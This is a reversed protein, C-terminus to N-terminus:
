IKKQFNQGFFKNLSDIQLILPIILIKKIQNIYINTLSASDRTIPKWNANQSEEFYMM